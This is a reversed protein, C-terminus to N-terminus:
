DSVRGCMRSYRLSWKSAIQPSTVTWWTARTQRAGRDAARPKKRRERAAWLRSCNSEQTKQGVSDENRRGAERIGRERWTATARVDGEAGRASESERAMWGVPLWSAKQREREKDAGVIDQCSMKQVCFLLCLSLPSDLSQNRKSDAKKRESEIREKKTKEVLLTQRFKQVSDERISSKHPRLTKSYPFIWYHTEAEKKERILRERKLGSDIKEVEIRVRKWCDQWTNLQREKELVVATNNESIAMNANNCNEGGIKLM